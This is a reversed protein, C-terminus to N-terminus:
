SLDHEADRYGGDGDRVFVNEPRIGADALVSLARELRYEAVAIVYGCGRESVSKPLRNVSAGIGGRELVKAGRQAQTLSRCKLYYQLFIGGCVITVSWQIHPSTNETGATKHSFFLPM